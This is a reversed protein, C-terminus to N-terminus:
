YRIGLGVTIGRSRILFILLSINKKKTQKKKFLNNVYYLEGTARAMERKKEYYDKTEDSSFM